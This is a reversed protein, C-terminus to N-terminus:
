IIIYGRGNCIQCKGTGHCTNCTRNTIPDIRKGNCNWCKGSEGCSKCPYHHDTSSGGGNGGSNSSPNDSSFVARLPSISNVSTDYQFSFENNSRCYRLYTREYPIILDFENNADLYGWFEESFQLYPGNINDWPIEEFLHWGTIPFFVSNGNSGTVKVGDVNNLKCRKWICKSELESIEDYTPLRWKRGMLHRVRDWDSGSIKSPISTSKGWYVPLTYEGFQSPDQAGYNSTAWCVSLGIDVYGYGDSRGSEAFSEYSENQLDDKDDNCSTFVICFIALIIFTISWPKRELNNM